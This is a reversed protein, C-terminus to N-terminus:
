SQGSQHGARTEPVGHCFEGPTAQLARRFAGSDADGLLYATEQITRRELSLMRKALTAFADNAVADYSTEEEAL